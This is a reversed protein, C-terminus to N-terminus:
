AQAAILEPPEQQCAAATRRRVLEAAKDDRVLRSFDAAVGLLARANDESEADHTKLLDLVEEVYHDLMEGLKELARGRAAAFGGYNASSRLDRVFTLLTMARRVAREDPPMSLKPISRRIRKLKAPGTPLATAAWKEAERLRGEALSALSQRQKVLRSGWGHERTLDICTELESTQFTILEVLKAAHAGAAPGADLDLHAIAKLADDIESLIREGFGALESDALYRENPKDMVASIVRLVMWHHPLQAAIMEFYAPGGDEAITVADKYALRAGATVEEGVHSTWDALRFSAARVVPALDLCGVFAAAGGSWAEECADAVKVFESAQGARLANAALRVLRDFPEASTEGPRYDYLAMEADAIATPAIARLGRWVGGLARSPFVLRQVDRGQGVCMPAIPALVINRLRRDRAEFEVLKRVDALASDGGTEALAAHLGSVVHDPAAEVLTRVIQLKREPLAAM